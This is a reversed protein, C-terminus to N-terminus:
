RLRDVALVAVARLIAKGVKPSKGQTLKDLIRPVQYVHGILRLPGLADLSM